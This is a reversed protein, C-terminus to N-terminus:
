HSVTQLQSWPLAAVVDYEPEGQWSATIPDVGSHGQAAWDSVTESQLMVAGAQDTFVMGYRQLATFVM